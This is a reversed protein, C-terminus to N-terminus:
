LGLDSAKIRTKTYIEKKLRQPIIIKSYFLNNELNPDSLNHLEIYYMNQSSWYKSLDNPDLYYKKNQNLTYFKSGFYYLAASQKRIREFGCDNNRFDVMFGKSLYLQIESEIDGIETSRHTRNFEQIIEEQQSIYRAYDWAFVDSRKDTAVHYVLYNTFWNPLHYDKEIVIIAGDKDYDTDNPNCAFYLAVKYDSTFDLCRTKRGYHQAVALSILRKDSENVDLMELLEKDEQVNKNRLLTPLLKWDKNAHGRYFYGRRHNASILPIPKSAIEEITEILEDYSNIIINKMNSKNFRM